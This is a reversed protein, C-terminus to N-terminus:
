PSEQILLSWEGSTTVAVYFIGPVLTAKSRQQHDCPTTERLSRQKESDIQLTLTTPAATCTRTVKWSRQMTFNGILKAGHGRTNQVTQWASPTQVVSHFTQSIIGVTLLFIAILLALRVKKGHMRRNGKGKLM